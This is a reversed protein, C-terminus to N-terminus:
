DGLWRFTDFIANATDPDDNIQLICVLVKKNEKESCLAYSASYESMQEGFINRIFCHPYISGDYAEDVKGRQIGYNPFSRIKPKAVGFYNCSKRANSPTELNSFEYINMDVESKMGQKKSSTFSPNSRETALDFTVTWNNLEPPISVVYGDQTNEFIKWGEPTDLNTCGSLTIMIALFLSIKKM